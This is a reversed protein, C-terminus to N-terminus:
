SISLHLKKGGLDARLLIIMGIGLLLLLIKKQNDEVLIINDKANLVINGWFRGVYASCEWHNINKVLITDGTRLHVGLCAFDRVAIYQIM